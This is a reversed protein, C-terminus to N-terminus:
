ITMPQRDFRIDWKGLVAGVDPTDSFTQVFRNLRTCREAPSAKCFQDLAKKFRFDTRMAEDVGTVVCLEPVFLSPATQGRRKDRASPLSILLPQQMDKIEIKYNKVCVCVVYSRHLIFSHFTFALQTNEM